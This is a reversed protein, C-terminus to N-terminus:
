DIKFLFSKIVIGCLRFTHIDFDNTKAKTTRTTLKRNAALMHSTAVNNELYM